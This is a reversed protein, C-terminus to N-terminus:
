PGQGLGRGENGGVGAANVWSGKVVVLRWGGTVLRGGGVALAHHAWPNKPFVTYLIVKKGGNLAARGWGCAAGPPPPPPQPHQPPPPATVAAHATTCQTGSDGSQM